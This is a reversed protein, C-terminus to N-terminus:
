KIFLLVVRELTQKFDRVLIHEGGLKSECVEFVKDYFLKQSTFASQMKEFLIIDSNEITYETSMLNHIKDACSVLASEAPGNKLAVIYAEKRELWPKQDDLAKNADLPETVGLIIETVRSGFEEELKEKNYGPVDELSDHLLGAILVDEEDTAKALLYMVGYLHSVYPTMDKGRRLQARHLESARNIAHALRKSLLM